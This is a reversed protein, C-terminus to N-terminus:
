PFIIHDLTPSVSHGLPKSLGNSSLFMLGQDIVVQLAFRNLSPNYPASLSLVSAALVEDRIKSPEESCSLRLRRM